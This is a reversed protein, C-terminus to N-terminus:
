ATEPPTTENLTGEGPTIFMMNTPESIRATHWCGRPVIVFSGPISLETSEEGSDRKLVFVARGSLLVVMEDGKPHIEWTPWDETFQHASILTHSRFDGYDTDLQEYLEPSVAIQDMHLDPKLVVFEDYIKPM